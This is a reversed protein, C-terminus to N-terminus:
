KDMVLEVKPQAALKIDSLKKTYRRGNLFEGIFTSRVLYHYTVFCIVTTVSVVFLFKFTAPINWDAILGPIIVTLPLHLLYVWYSSDSVYRMTASHHSGYRIFLGTIGFIFLWCCIARISIILWPAMESKETLFYWTFLLLGVTTFLWDHKKFSGLLEKSKFLVWGFMYFFFYFLFTNFDPVFSLSTDVWTKDMFLLIAITILTFVVLRLVINKFIAHFYQNIFSSLKPLKKFLLGLGFSVLSFLILYYLFWLHMTRNPIFSLISTFPALADTLANPNAAFVQATYSMGAQVFVFLLLVFVLFPYTIRQMRNKFMWRPGREYFLLSAFFGAVVMFIPMRFVHIFSGIWALNENFNIPDRIRWISNVAAGNYTNVSHLVIGLMMMIARLSDLAHLRETKHPITKM